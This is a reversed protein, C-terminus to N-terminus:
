VPRSLTKCHTYTVLSGAPPPRSCTWIPFITRCHGEPRFLVGQGNQRPRKATPPSNVPSQLSILIKHSHITRGPHRQQQKRQQRKQIHQIKHVPPKNRAQRLAAALEYNGLNRYADADAFSVGDKSITAVYLKDDAPAGEIVIARIGLKDLKQGAPGGANAEKIGQTLPSKAGVSLRGFSPAMTGALPGIAIILKAEQGLPDAKPSVEANLIKATLARRGVVKRDDPLDEDRSTLTNMDIRLIKM